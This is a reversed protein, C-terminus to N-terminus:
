ILPAVIGTSPAYRQLHDVTLLVATSLFSPTIIHIGSYLIDFHDACRRLSYIKYDDLDFSCFGTKVTKATCSQCIAPSRNLMKNLSVELGEHDAAFNVIDSLEPLKHVLISVPSCSGYGVIGDGTYIHRQPVDFAFHCSHRKIVKKAALHPGANRHVSVHVSRVHILDTFVNLFVARDSNFINAALAATVASAIVPFGRGPSGFSRQVANIKVAFLIHAVCKVEEFLDTDFFAFLDFQHVVHMLPDMGSLCHSKDFLHFGVLKEKHFVYNRKLM